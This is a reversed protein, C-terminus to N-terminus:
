RPDAVAASVAETLEASTVAYQTYGSPRREHETTLVTSGDVVVRWTDSGAPDASKLTITVDFRDQLSEVVEYTLEGDALRSPRYPRLDHEAFEYVLDRWWEPLADIDDYVVSPDSVRDASALDDVGDVDDRNDFM